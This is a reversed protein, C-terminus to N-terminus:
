EVNVKPTSSRVLSRAWTGTCPPDSRLWEQAIYPFTDPCTNGLWKLFWDMREYLKIFDEEVM